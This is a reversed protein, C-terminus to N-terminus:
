TKKKGLDSTLRGRAYEKTFFELHFTNQWHNRENAIIRLMASKRREAPVSWKDLITNRKNPYPSPYCLTIRLVYKQIQPWSCRLNQKPFWICYQPDFWCGDVSHLFIVKSGIRYRNIEDFNNIDNKGNLLHKANANPDHGTFRMLNNTISTLLHDKITNPALPDTKASSLLYHILLFSNLAQHMWLKWM